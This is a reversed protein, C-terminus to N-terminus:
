VGRLTAVAVMDVTGSLAGPVEQLSGMNLVARIACTGFFFIVVAFARAGDQLISSICVKLERAVEGLQM